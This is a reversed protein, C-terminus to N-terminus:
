DLIEVRDVIIVTEDWGAFRVKTGVIKVNKRWYRNLDGGDWRLHYITKTGRILEHTAPRNFIPGLADIKGTVVCQGPRLGDSPEKPEDAVEPKSVASTTDSAGKVEAPDQTKPASAAAEREAAERALRAAEANRENRQEMVEVSIVRLSVQQTLTTDSTRKIFAKMDTKLASWDQTEWPQANIRQFESEIRDFEGMTARVAAAKAEEAAKAKAIESLHSQYAKYDKRAATVAKSKAAAWKGDNRLEGTKMVYASYVWASIGAPAVIEYFGGNEGVIEVKTGEALTGVIIGKQDDASLRVNLKAGVTTGEIAGTGAKVTVYKKAVYVFKGAPYEIELWEGEEKVISVAVGRDVQGLVEGTRSASTRIRLNDAQVLGEQPFVTAASAPATLVMGLVVSFLIVNVLKKM